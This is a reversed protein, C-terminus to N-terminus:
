QSRNDMVIPVLAAQNIKVKSQGVHEVEISVTRTNEMLRVRKTFEHEPQRPSLAFDGLLIRSQSLSYVDKISSNANAQHLWVHIQGKGSIRLDIGYEQGGSVSIDNSILSISRDRHFLSLFFNGHSTENGKMLKRSTTWGGLAKRGGILIGTTRGWALTGPTIDIIKEDHISSPKLSYIQNGDASFELTTLGPNRLITQLVSNYLPPLSYDTAHIHTIGLNRLLEYGKLTNKQKYFAVLRPDLYSIMRRKAYYMDAPKLSFVLANSPTHLRLYRVNRYEPRNQLTSEFENGVTAPSLNNAAWRYKTLAFLEAASFLLLLALGWCQASGRGTLKRDEQKVTIESTFAYAAVIAIAPMIVLMYRENKIMLDLGLFVSVIVGLLYCVVLGTTIKLITPGADAVNRPDNVPRIEGRGLKGIYVAFGASALWFSLGYAELAFWGKFIGYQVIATWNDIGRMITFYEPWAQEPLAFVVPNDSIPSGFIAMNRAYPWFAILVATLLLAAYERALDRWNKWGRFFLLAAMALPVFLIAQSHTWLACGLAAGVTLGRIAAPANLGIIAAVVFVFGLVPLADILASDAGLYLLPTSIFILAAIVGTMRSVLAGITYVLATAALAFWPAIMRMLGPADAHGQLASVLYIMAVYLPPHTWPGYFGSATSDPCIAPYSTLTRTEFLIRGVTAYELSDNQTLPLMVANIILVAAWLMLVAMFPWVRWDAPCHGQTISHQRKPMLWAATSGIGALATLVFGAHTLHSAGPLIALAVVSLLGFLFPGIAFGAALAMGARRAQASWPLRLSLVIGALSASALFVAFALWSSLSTEIM